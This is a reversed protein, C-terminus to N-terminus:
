PGLGEFFASGVRRRLEDGADAGLAAAEAVSGSRWTERADSGEPRLVMGHFRVTGGGVVAHGAIPSRCSGDLRGLFARECVLATRTADDDVAALAALTREDDGRIELAIIGQGVAPLFEDPELITTAAQCLGLRKLGALALLTADVAGADLKALRTEVNGRFTVVEVDPRRRRVLAQRRM